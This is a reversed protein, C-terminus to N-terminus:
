AAGGEKFAQNLLTKFRYIRNNIGGPSIRTIESIAAADLGELYLHMVQRDPLALRQVLALLRDRAQTEGILAELDSDHSLQEAHELGIWQGTRARRERLVYATAANHAVRYVWTRVSCQGAFTAFSKWLALHIDQVLDARRDPHAEYASALRAIADAFATAAAQYASDQDERTRRM